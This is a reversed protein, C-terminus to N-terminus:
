RFILLGIANFVVLCAWVVLGLRLGRNARGFGTSGRELYRRAVLGAVIAILGAVM